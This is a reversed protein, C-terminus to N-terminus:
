AFLVIASEIGPGLTFFNTGGCPGGRRLTRGELTLVLLFPASPRVVEGYRDRLVKASISSVRLVNSRITSSVRWAGSLTTALSNDQQRTLRNVAGEEEFAGPRAKRVFM